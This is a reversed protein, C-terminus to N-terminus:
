DEQAVKFIRLSLLPLDLLIHYERGSVSGKIAEIKKLPKEKGGFKKDQSNFIEMYNQKKPVGVRYNKVIKDSFNCVILLRDSNNEGLRLFSIISNKYDLEDIWEFGKQSYDYLHLASEDKYLRNLEVVLKLLQSHEKERLLSWDLSGNSDWRKWQGLESGMFLLKKAPYVMMYSFLLRLTAFKFDREGKIENIFSDQFQLVEKYSLPLIYNEQHLCIFNFILKHHYKPRDKPELFIYDLTDKAWNSNFKYGFGLGGLYTPRSILPFISDESIMIVSRNEKYISDNLQKLFSIAHLNERGILNKHLRESDSESTDNPYIMYDISGVKLGDLHYYKLWFMASSILFERVEARAHNFLNKTSTSRYKSKPYEYILTGDFEKLNNGLSIPLWEMIVGIGNQHMMDVFRMFEFPSGLNAPPAFYGGEMTDLSNLYYKESIIEIYNYGVKKLYKILKEALDLYSLPLNSKKM